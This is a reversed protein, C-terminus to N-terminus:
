HCFVDDIIYKFNYKLIYASLHLVVTTLNLHPIQFELEFLKFLGKHEGRLAEVINLGKLM